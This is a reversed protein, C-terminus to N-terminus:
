TRTPRTSGPTSRPPGRQDDDDSGCAVLGAVGTGVLFFTLGLSRTLKKM